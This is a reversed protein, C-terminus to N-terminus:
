FHMRRVQDGTMDILKKIEEMASELNKILAEAMAKGTIRPHALVHALVEVGVDVNDLM